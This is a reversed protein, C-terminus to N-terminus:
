RRFNVTLTVIVPVPKGGVFTPEYVWQRVADLAAQDLGKVGRLLQVAAVEGKRGIMAEVVVIGSAGQLRAEEPYEAEVRVLQAPMKIPGGVRVADAPPAWPAAAQRAKPASPNGSSRLGWARARKVCDAFTKAPDECKLRSEPKADQYLSRFMLARLAAMAVTEPEGLDVVRVPLEIPEDSGLSRLGGIVGSVSATDDLMAVLRPTGGEVFRLLGVASAAAARVIPSPDDLTRLLESAFAKADAGPEVRRTGPLEIGPYFMKATAGIAAARMVPSGASRRRKLSVAIRGHRATFAPSMRGMTNFMFMNTYAVGESADDMALAMVEPVLESRSCVHAGVQYLATLAAYRVDPEGHKLAMDAMAELSATHGQEGANLASAAGLAKDLIPREASRLGSMIGWIVLPHVGRPDSGASAMLSLRRGIADYVAAILPAEKSSLALHGLAALSEPRELTAETFGREKQFEARLTRALATTDPDAKPAPQPPVTAVPPVKGGWDRVLKLAAAMQSRTLKQALEKLSDEDPAGGAKVALTGGLSRWAYALAYDKPLGEGDEYMRAIRLAGAIFGLSAARHSWLFALRQDEDLGFNGGAYIEALSFQAEGSGNEAAKRIWRFGEVDSEDVGEGRLYSWGLLYQALPHGQDAARRYFAAAKAQDVPVGLGDAYARGVRVQAESDGKEADAIMQRDVAPPAKAAQLTLLVCLSITIM